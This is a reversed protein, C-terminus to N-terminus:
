GRSKKPSRRKDAWERVIMAVMLSRSVAFPKQEAAAKDLEDVDSESLRAYIPVTKESKKAMGSLTNLDSV